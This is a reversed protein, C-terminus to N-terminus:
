GNTEGKNYIEELEKKDEVKILNAGILDRINFDPEKNIHNRFGIQTLYAEVTYPDYDVAKLRDVMFYYSKDNLEIKFNDSMTIPIQFFVRLYTGYTRIEAEKIYIM